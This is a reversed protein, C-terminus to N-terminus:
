DSAAFGATPPASRDQIALAVTPFHQNSVVDPATLAAVVTWPLPPSKSKKVRSRRVSLRPLAPRCVTAVLRTGPKPLSYERRDTPTESRLGNLWVAQASLVRGGLRAPRTWKTADTTFVSPSLRNNDSCSTSTASSRETGAENRDPAPHKMVPRRCACRHCAIRM